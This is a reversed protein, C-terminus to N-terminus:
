APTPSPRASRTGHAVEPAFRHGVVLVLLPSLGRANLGVVFRVPCFRLRSRPLDVRLFFGPLRAWLPPLQAPSADDARASRRGISGSAVVTAARSSATAAASRRSRSSSAPWGRAQACSTRRRPPPARWAKRASSSTSSPSARGTRAGSTAAGSKARLPLAGRRRALAALEMRHRRAGRRPVRPAARGPRRGLGCGADLMPPARRSRCAKRSVACAHRAPDPLDARRALRALPYVLALLALPLLWRGRRCRSAAAPCRSALASLRLRRLHPALAHRRDRSRRASRPRSRRLCRRRASSRSRRSCSGAARGPPSPRCRGAATSSAAGSRATASAVTVAADVIARGSM